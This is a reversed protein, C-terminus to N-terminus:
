SGSGWLDKLYPIKNTTDNGANDPLNRVEIYLKNSTAANAEGSGDNGIVTVQYQNLQRLQNGDVSSFDSEQTGYASAM